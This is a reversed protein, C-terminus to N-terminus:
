ARLTVVPCKAHRVIYDSVSGLVARSLGGRGHTGVVVLDCGNEEATRVAADGAAPALVVAPEGQVGHRSMAERVANRAADIEAQSPPPAVVPITVAAIPIPNIVHLVLISGGQSRQEDAAWALARESAPSFDFPVLIAHSM